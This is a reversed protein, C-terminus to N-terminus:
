DDDPDPEYKPLEGAAVKRRVFDATMERAFRHIERTGAAQLDVPRVQVAFEGEGITMTRGVERAVTGLMAGFVSRLISRQSSTSSPMVRALEGEVADLVGEVAAVAVPNPLEAGLDRRRPGRRRNKKRKERTM